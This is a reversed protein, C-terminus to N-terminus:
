IVLDTTKKPGHVNCILIILHNVPHRCHDPCLLDKLSIQKTGGFLQFCCLNMLRSGFYTCYFMFSFFMQLSQRIKDWETNKEQGSGMRNILDRWCLLLLQVVASQGIPPTQCLVHRSTSLHHFCVGCREQDSQSTCLLRPPYGSVSECTLVLSPGWM